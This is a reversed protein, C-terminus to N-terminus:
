GYDEYGKGRTGEVEMNKCVSEWDEITKSKIPGFWLSWKYRFVTEINNTLKTGHQENLILNHVDVFPYNNKFAIFIQECFQWM